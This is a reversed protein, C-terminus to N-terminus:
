SENVWYFINPYKKELSLLDEYDNWYKRLFKFLATEYWGSAGIHGCITNTEEPINLDLYTPVENHWDNLFTNAMGLLYHQTISESGKNAWAPYVTENLFTQDAGKRKYDIHQNLQLLKDWSDPMRLTWTDTKIGIMGGLLPINHSVSDTIAHMASGKNLWYQVCQAEKKTTPSDLDRCLVHTFKPKDWEKGGKNLYVPKLRWLMAKCLPEPENVYVELDKIGDFLEKFAEYTEKDTNLVTTWEPYVIRNMRISIMLGRLYSNFDFCNDQREKNYGFLAYSIAKM